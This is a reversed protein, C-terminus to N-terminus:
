FCNTTCMAGYCCTTCIMTRGDPFFYTTTTCAAQAEAYWLAVALFIAVASIRRFAKLTMM